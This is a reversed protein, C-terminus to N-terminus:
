DITSVPRANVDLVTTRKVACSAAPVTPTTEVVPVADASRVLNVTVTGLKAVVPATRTTPTAPAPIGSCTTGNMRAIPPDM